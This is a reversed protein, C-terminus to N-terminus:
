YRELSCRQLGAAISLWPLAARPYSRPAKRSDLLGLSRRGQPEKASCFLLVAPIGPGHRDGVAAVVVSVVVLVAEFHHRVYLNFLAWVRENLQQQGYLEPKIMQNSMKRLALSMSLPRPSPLMAHHLAPFLCRYLRIPVCTGFGLHWTHIPHGTKRRDVSSYNM